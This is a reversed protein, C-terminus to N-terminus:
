SRNDGRFKTPDKSLYKFSRSVDAVVLAPVARSHELCFPREEVTEYGTTKSYMTLGQQSTAINLYTVRRRKTPV